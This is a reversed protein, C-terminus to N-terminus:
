KGPWIQDLDIKVTEGQDVQKKASLVKRVFEPPYSNETSVEFQIKHAKFFKKIVSIEEENAPHVIISHNKM